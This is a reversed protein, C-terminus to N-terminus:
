KKRLDLGVLVRETNLLSGVVKKVPVPLKRILTPIAIIQDAAAMEPNEILDIVEIQYQGKLEQECIKELNQFTTECNQTKGAVYLRLVWCEEKNIMRDSGSNGTDTKMKNGM